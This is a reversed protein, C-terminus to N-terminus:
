VQSTLIILDPNVKKFEWEQGVKLETRKFINKDRIVLNLVLINAIGKGGKM